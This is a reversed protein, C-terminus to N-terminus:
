WRPPVDTTSKSHTRGREAFYDEFNILYEPTAGAYGYIVQDDDGVGFTNYTPASLIRILLMHAPNLDQFEDVLVHRCRSQAASRAAPDSLLIEIARYIQEDFDVAGADVLAERYADFGTALGNADPFEDEVAAPSRLGLRVASLADIYPLVTDTNTQRRVEFVSQVLDRVRPEELVDMRGRGGFENCISLGVSNLTRIHPGHATVLGGCRERLEDAAKKNYALVTVTSPEASREDMLYRLRETLVRTKGSGAPAIVRAGGAPHSVAALQDAALDAEPPRHGVTSLSGAEANWRHVVRIGDPDRTPAFPGGDVFLPTGDALEIDARASETVGQRAFSRVAKRGHWWIPEGNRADYNNAWLLFHLRERTFEFRPRLDHVPLHCTEREQLQRSDVALEVVLSQRESWSQQM